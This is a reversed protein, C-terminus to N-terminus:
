VKGSVRLMRYRRLTQRVTYRSWNCGRATAYGDSNLLDAITAASTDGISAQILPGVTRTVEAERAAQAAHAARITLNGAGVPNRSTLSTNTARISAGSGSGGSRTTHGRKM